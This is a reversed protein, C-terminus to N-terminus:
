PSLAILTAVIGVITGGAALVGLTIAVVQSVGQKSTGRREERESAVRDELAEMEVRTAFTARLDSLSGRWENSQAKYEALNRAISEHQQAHSEWRQESLEREGNHLERHAHWREAALEAHAESREGETTM